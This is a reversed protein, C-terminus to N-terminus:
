REAHEETDEETGQHGALRQGVAGGPHTQGFEELSYRNLRLLIACLADGAAANVLSSGLAIMGHPDVAGETEVEFVLDCIEALPSHPDETQAIVKAGRVKAIRAFQNVESSRGGKSIIYVVDRATVAGSSGHLSDAASIYLAPTGCCSLLHAFREAVARSTGAGAVLVHGQCNHLLAAASLLAAAAAREEAASPMAGLPAALAQIARAERTITEYALSVLDHDSLEQM